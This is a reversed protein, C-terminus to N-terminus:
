IAQEHTLLWRKIWSWDCHDRRANFGGLGQSAVVRHCPVILPLPNAGCAGGVARPASHIASAIQAYSQVAGLPIRSIQEWVRLRYDSGSLRYPVTFRHEPNIFYRDLQTQVECLLASKPARLSAREGLFVIRTLAGDNELLGLCAIPSAIVADFEPNM